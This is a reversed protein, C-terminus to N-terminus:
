PSPVLYGSISGLLTWGGVNVNRSCFVKVRSGPDAFALVEQSIAKHEFLGFLGLGETKLYHERSLQRFVTTLRCWVNQGATGLRMQMSVQRIELRKGVPVQALIVELDGDLAGGTGVTDVTDHFPVSGSSGVVAVPLPNALTASLNVTPTGNIGVSWNGAQFSNVSGAIPLVPNSVTVSGNIPLVANTVNVNSTGTVVVSGTIPLPQPARVPVANANTNLVTVPASPPTQQGFAPTIAALLVATVGAAAISPVRANPRSM